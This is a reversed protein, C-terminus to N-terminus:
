EWSVSVRVETGIKIVRTVEIPRNKKGLSGLKGDKDKWEVVTYSRYSIEM